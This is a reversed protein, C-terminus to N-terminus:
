VLLDISILILFLWFHFQSIYTFNMGLFAIEAPTTCLMGASKRFARVESGAARDFHSSMVGSARFSHIHQVIETFFGSVLFCCTSRTHESSLSPIRLGHQQGPQGCRQSFCGKVRTTIQMTLNRTYKERHPFHIWVRSWDLEEKDPDNLARKM